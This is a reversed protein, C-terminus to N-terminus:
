TAPHISYTARQQASATSASDSRGGHTSHSQAAAAHAVGDRLELHPQLRAPTVSLARDRHCPHAWDTDLHPGSPRRQWIVPYQALVSGGVVPVEARRCRARRLREGPQERYIGHPRVHDLLCISGPSTGCRRGSGSAIRGTRDGPSSCNVASRDSGVQLQLSGEAHPERRCFGGRSQGALCLAAYNRPAVPAEPRRQPQAM